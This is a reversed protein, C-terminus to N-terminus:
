KPFQIFKEQSDRPSQLQLTTFSYSYGDFLLILTQPIPTTMHWKGRTVSVELYTFSTFRTKWSSRSTGQARKGMDTGYTDRDASLREMKFATKM